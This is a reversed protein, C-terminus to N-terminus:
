VSMIWRKGKAQIAAMAPCIREWFNEDISVFGYWESFGHLYKHGLPDALIVTRKKM